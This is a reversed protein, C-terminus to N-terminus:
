RLQSVNERGEKRRGSERREARKKGRWRQQQSPETRPEVQGWFSYVNAHMLVRGHSQRGGATGDLRILSGLM